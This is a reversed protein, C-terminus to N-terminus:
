RSSGRRKDFCDKCYVPKDESPKFPVTTEQGCEACVAPFMERPANRFGGRRQAKAAARCEPCRQPENQFGKERYFEQENETFVFERNCEKCVITKDAM